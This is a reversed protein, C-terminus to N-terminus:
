RLWKQSAEKRGGRGNEFHLFFRFFLLTVLWFPMTVSHVRRQAREWCICVVALVCVCVVVVLLSVCVCVWYYCCVVVVCVCCCLLM